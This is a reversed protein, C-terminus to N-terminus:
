VDCLETMLADNASLSYQRKGASEGAGGGGKMTERRVREWPGKKQRGTNLTASWVRYTTEHQGGEEQKGKEAKAVLSGESTAREWFGTKSECCKCGRLIPRKTNASWRAKTSEKEAAYNGGVPRRKPGRNQCRLELDNEPLLAKM